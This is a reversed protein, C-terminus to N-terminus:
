IVHQALYLTCFKLCLYAVNLHEHVMCERQNVSINIYQQIDYQNISARNSRPGATAVIAMPIM